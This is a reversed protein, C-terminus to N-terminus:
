MSIFKYNFYVLNAILWWECDHLNYFRDFYFIFDVLLGYPVKGDQFNKNGFGENSAPIIYYFRNAMWSEAWDDRKQSLHSLDRNKEVIERVM